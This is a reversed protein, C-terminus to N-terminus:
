KEKEEANYKECESFFRSEKEKKRGGPATYSLILEKKARTMGVYLLRREEELKGEDIARKYPIKGENMEIIYVTEFELGKAGHLSRLSIRGAPSKEETERRIKRLRVAEKWSEWSKYVRSEEQLLELIHLLGEEEIGKETAYSKLYNRYAMGHSIYSLRAFCTMEKMRELDRILKGAALAEEKPLQRQWDWLDLEERELYERGLGRPPHNLIRLLDGRKRKGEALELYSFLDRAIWHAYLDDEKGEMYYPINKEELKIRMSDAHMRTRFLLSIEEPNQGRELRRRIEETIMEAEKESSAHELIRLLGDEALASRIQKAFRKQNHSILKGAAEVIQRRCRYNIGLMFSEADPYQEPFSLMISPDSGRFSYISQDDDGVVFLNKEPLALLQVLEYQVPNIDQFEDVLIYRYRKQWKELIRKEERFLRCTLLQMDDFDLKGQKQMRKELALCIEELYPFDPQDERRMGLNKWKSIATELEQMKEQDQRIEIGLEKLVFRLMRQKEGSSILDQLGYGREMRLIHFFVAHFTGFSVETRERQALKLYREKMEEAAARTFTIVLIDAPPIGKEVLNLIRGTLVATKGSGPGALVFAPGDMHRVAREQEENYNM